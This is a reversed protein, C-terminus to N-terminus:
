DTRVCVQTGRARMLFVRAFDAFNIDDVTLVRKANKTTVETKNSKSWNGGKEQDGEEGRRGGGAM